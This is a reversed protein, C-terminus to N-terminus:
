VSHSFIKPEDKAYQSANCGQLCPSKPKLEPQLDLKKSIEKERIFTNFVALGLILDILIGRLYFPFFYIADVGGERFKRALPFTTQDIM